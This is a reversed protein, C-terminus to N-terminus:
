RGTLWPRQRRPWYSPEWSCCPGDQSHGSAMSSRPSRSGSMATGDRDCSDPLHRGPLWVGLQHEHVWRQRRARCCRSRAATVNVSLGTQTPVSVGSNGLTLSPWTGSDSTCGGGGVVTVPGNQSIGVITVSFSNPNNLQVRLDATEGPTLNSLASGSTTAVLTVQQATGTHASGAGSGASTFYAYASGVRSGAVDGSCRGGSYSSHKARM